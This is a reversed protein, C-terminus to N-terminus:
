ELPQYSSSSAGVDDMVVQSLMCRSCQMTGLLLMPATLTRIMNLEARSEILEARLAAIAQEPAMGQTLRDTFQSGAQLHSIITSFVIKDASTIHNGKGKGGAKKSEKFARRKEDRLRLIDHLKEFEKRLLNGPTLRLLVAPLENLLRQEFKGDRAGKQQEPHMKELLELIEASM